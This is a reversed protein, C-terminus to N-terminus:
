EGKAKRIAARITTMTENEDYRGYFGELTEEAIELADLLEPGAAVLRANAEKEEREPTGEPFVRPYWSEGAVHREQGYVDLGHDSVRYNWPGPTHKSM